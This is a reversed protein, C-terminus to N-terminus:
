FRFQRDIKKLAQKRKNDLRKQKAAKSLKIAKRQKPVYLARELLHILVQTAREKNELQSRTEQSTVHLLGDQSSIRSALKLAIREKEEGSFGPFDRFAFLLTVKTEVKNVNQGGSGGSRSTVYSIYPKFQDPSFRLSGM